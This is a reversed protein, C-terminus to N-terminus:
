RYKTIDFASLLGGGLGFSCETEGLGATVFDVSLCVVINKLIVIEHLDGSIM